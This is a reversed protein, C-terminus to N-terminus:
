RLVLVAGAGILIDAVRQWPSSRKRKLTDILKIQTDIVAAKAAIVEDKAASASRLADTEAKRAANLETLTASLRDATELSSKLQVNESELRLNLERVASLERAAGACSAVFGKNADTVRV